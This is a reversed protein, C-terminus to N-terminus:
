IWYRAWIGREEETGRFRFEVETIDQFGESAKPEKFRSKFGNFALKPLVARSEPNMQEM